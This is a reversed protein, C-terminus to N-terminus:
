SGFTIDNSLTRKPSYASINSITVNNTCHRGEPTKLTLRSSIKVCQELTEM